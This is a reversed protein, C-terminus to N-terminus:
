PRFKYGFGRLTEIREQGIKGRLRQVHVDVVRPDGGWEGDWVRELLVSRSLVVGPETVFELLLKRQTPTLDLERGRLRVEMTVTNVVLAGFTLTAADPAAQEDFRWSGARSAHQPDNSVGPASGWALCDPTGAGPEGALGTPNRAPIVLLPVDSNERILRALGSADLRPGDSSRYAAPGPSGVTIHAQLYETVTRDGTTLRAELYFVSDRELPRPTTWTHVGTVDYSANEHLMTYVAGHSAHWVLTVYDGRALTTRGEDLFTPRLGGLRFGPLCKGVHFEARGEATEGQDDLTEELITVATVGTGPNVVVNTLEFLLSQAGVEVYGDGEDPTAVVRSNGSWTFTWGQGPAVTARIRDPTETLDGAGPGGCFTFSLSTLRVSTGAPAAATISITAPAATAGAPTIQLPAPNTTLVYDLVTSPNAAADAFM